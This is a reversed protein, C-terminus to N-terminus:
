VGTNEKIWGRFESVTTYIGPKNRRACGDGWSVVGALLMCDGELINLPGGSDGQCADVGGKLVGACFMKSTLRYSMLKNCETHNIIRVEAKQLVKAAPGGERTAGWGTIFVTEGVPVKYDANPLCIPQIHDSYKIPSDLEMLAIDNNFTNPNYNPNSIIRKLKRKVVFSEIKRQDHLGLFVEWTAPEGFRLNGDNQVCHAATVLWNESIISAGCVHGYNQFHLSVQWPFEGQAADEGGVIRTSSRLKKRGCACNEEDSGDECDSSGDCVPNKKDICKGNKCKYTSETCQVESNKKCNLEDSNDGCDDKGDCQKQESVCKKNTCTIYGTDCAGCGREDTGDGCDDVGDCKWFVSKCLGNGCTLLSDGTCKCNKEDSLDGCDNWGDCTLNQSICLGNRCHFKGPCPDVPDIAEYEAQFGRDVYSHDSLFELTMKNTKSIEFINGDKHDGCLKKNKDIMVYDKDCNKGNEQGPEALLLKKFTVKVVKGSPVEIEWDCKINPPYYNPFNPTSFTGKSGTLKTSCSKRLTEPPVQSVHARFGPFNYKDNTGMTVLMVNGSSYFTLPESPSYHECLEELARNEIPVLSDYIKVFDNSCNEELYMADFELKIISGEDGRLEWQTFTNPKYSKAPFGTTEIRVIENPKTHIRSKTESIYSTRSMRSDIVSTKMDTVQLSSRSKAKTPFGRADQQNLVAIADDVSNEQGVPVKFESMYYAIVGESFANVTSNVYYKKLRPNSSYITKLEQQVQEALAKFERTDSSEYANDFAQNQIKMSGIYIRKAYEDKRFHFHWVLLGTMLGIVVAFIVAGIVAGTKGPGKELKKSDATQLFEVSEEYEKDLKPMYKIGSEMPDAM